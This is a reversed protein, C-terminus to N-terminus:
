LVDGLFLGLLVVGLRYISTLDSSKAVFVRYFSFSIASFLLLMLPMRLPPYSLLIAELVIRIIAATSFWIAGDMWSFRSPSREYIGAYEPGYDLPGYDLPGCDLSDSEALSDSPYSVSFRNNFYTSFNVTIQEKLKLLLKRLATQWQKTACSRQRGSSAKAATKIMSARAGGVSSGSEIPQSFPVCSPDSSATLPSIAPPRGAAPHRGRPNGTHLQRLAQATDIAEQEAHHLNVTTHSLNFQGQTDRKLYPVSASPYQDLFQAITELQPHHIGQRRLAVAAQQASRKMALLEAAQQQSRENIHRAQMELRDIEQEVLEKARSASEQRQTSSRKRLAEMAAAQPSDTAGATRRYSPTSASTKVQPSQAQPSSWPVSMADGAVPEAELLRLKERIAQLEMDTKKMDGFASLLLASPHACLLPPM